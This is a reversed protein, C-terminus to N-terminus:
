EPRRVREGCDSLREVSTPLLVVTIPQPLERPPATVIASALLVAIATDRQSDGTSDLFHSALVAGNAGIWLQLGLRYRGPQAQPNGCLLRRLTEQLDAFYSQLSITAAASGSSAASQLTTAGDTRDLTFAVDSAYRISLGTGALLIRLAQDPTLLGKVTASHRGAILEQDVVTAMGTARAYADLAQALPQAPIDFAIAKSPGATNEEGAFSTALHMTLCVGLCVTFFLERLM